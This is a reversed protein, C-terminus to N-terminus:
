ERARDRGTTLRRRRAARRRHRRARRGCRRGSCERAPCLVAQTTPMGCPTAVAASTGHVHHLEAPDVRQRRVDERRDVRQLDLGPSGALVDDVEAEAVGVDRRGVDRDVLERSATACGACGGSSPSGRCGSAASQRDGVEVPALEADLEIGLRLRARVMPALSPKECRIHTSSPGPSAASTGLGDYGIWMQPGSKAPASTRWTRSPGSCSKKSLRSSAQSSEHGRGRTM